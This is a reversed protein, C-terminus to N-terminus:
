QTAPSYQSIISDKFSCVAIIFIYVNVNLFNLHICKLGSTVFHICKLGLTVMFLHLNFVTLNYNYFHMHLISTYVTICPKSYFVFVFFWCHHLQFGIVYLWFHLAGGSQCM